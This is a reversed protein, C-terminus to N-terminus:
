LPGHYLTLYCKTTDPSLDQSYANFSCKQGTKELYWNIQIEKNTSDTSDDGDFTMRYVAFFKPITNRNINKTVNIYKDMKYNFNLQDKNCSSDSGGLCAHYYFNYAGQTIEQFPINGNNDAKYLEFANLWQRVEEQVQSNRAKRRADNLSSLVITSLLSIISIVVLLEILTFGKRKNNLFNSRLM